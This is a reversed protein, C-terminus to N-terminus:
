QQQEKLLSQIEKLEAILRLAAREIATVRKEIRELRAEDTQRAIGLMGLLWSM